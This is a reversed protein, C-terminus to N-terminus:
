QNENPKGLQKILYRRREHQPDIIGMPLFGTTEFLKMSARNTKDTRLIVEKKGLREAEWFYREVLQRGVGRERSSGDVAIEALYSTLRPNYEKLFSFREIPLDYGWTFGLLGEVNELVLSIPGKKTLSSELDDIVEERTFV